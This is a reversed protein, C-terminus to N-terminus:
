RPKLPVSIFSSTGLSSSRRVAPLDIRPFINAAALVPLTVRLHLRALPAGICYHPGKGFTLHGAGSSLLRGEATELEDNASSVLLKVRQGRQIRTGQFTFDCKAERAVIRFPADSRLAEEVQYESSAEDFAVGGRGASTIAAVCTATATPEIGGTLLQAVMAVVDEASVVGENLASHLRLCLFSSSDPLLRELVFTSLEEVASSADTALESDVRSAEVYRMLSGSWSELLATECPDTVGFLKMATATAAPRAFDHLFDSGGHFLREVLSKASAYISEKMVEVARRTFCSQVNKKLWAQEPHDSFVPWKAMHSEVTVVSARYDLPVDAIWDPFSLVGLRDDLLLEVVDQYRSVYWEQAEQDWHVPSRDRLQAFLGHPCQAIVPDSFM